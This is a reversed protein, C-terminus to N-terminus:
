LRTVSAAELTALHVLMYYLVMKERKKKQFTCQMACAHRVQQAIYQKINEEPKRLCVELTALLCM